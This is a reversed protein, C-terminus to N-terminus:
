RLTSKFIHRWFGVDCGARGDSACWRCGVVLRRSEVIGVGETVGFDELSLELVSHWRTSATM